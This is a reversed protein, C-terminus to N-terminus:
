VLARANINDALAEFSGHCFTLANVFSRFPIAETLKSISRPTTSWDTDELWAMETHPELVIIPYENDCMVTSIGFGTTEDISGKVMESFLMRALYPSDDWRDRKALTDRVVNISDEGMWHGYLWIRAGDQEQVVINSRAGM